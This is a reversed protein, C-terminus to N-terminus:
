VVSLFMLDGGNLDFGLSEIIPSVYLEVEQGNHFPHLADFDDRNSLHLTVERKTAVNLIKASPKAYRNGRDLTRIVSTVIMAPGLQREAALRHFRKAVETTFEFPLHPRRGALTIEAVSGEVRDPTIQAVLQDIEKVISRNSYADAWGAPPNEAVQEFTQTNRRMNRVRDRRHALQTEIADHQRMAQDVAGEFVPRVAIAIRDILAEAGNRVADLVIGGEVPYDAIFETEQYQRATLRAHKWVSGHHEILFARDIARQMHEYTKALTRVSVKHEVTIPGDFHVRFIAM